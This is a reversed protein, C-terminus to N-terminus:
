PTLAAQPLAPIPSGNADGSPEEPPPRLGSAALVHARGPPEPALWYYLGVILAITYAISGAVWMMGGALQQDSLASIGGPRSPLDAYHAYIPTPAVVFIIALVWGVIMAGVIYALRAVWDVHPRLPGVDIVRAWFLLGFFFFM